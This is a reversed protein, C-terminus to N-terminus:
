VSFSNILIQLWNRIEQRWCKMSYRYRIFYKKRIRHNEQKRLQRFQRSNSIGELDFIAIPHPIHYHSINQQKLLRIYLDYDASIQLSEDYGGSLEFVDREYFTAQHSIRNSLMYDSGIYNPYTMINGHIDGLYIDGYLMQVEPAKSSHLLANSNAFCDGGNMFILYKGVAKAAGKNMANYIGSDPESVLLDIKDSYEKLVELTGDTSGGDIVIWEFDDLSQNCINDCTVRIATAENLCVTIISFTASTM